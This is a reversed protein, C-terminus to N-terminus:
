PTPKKQSVVEVKKPAPKPAAPQAQVTKKRLLEAEQAKRRAAEQAKRAAEQAKREADIKKRLDLELEKREKARRIKERRAKEIQAKRQREKEKLEKDRIGARMQDDSDRDWYGSDLEIFVSSYPLSTKTKIVLVAFKKSTDQVITGLSRYDLYRMPNGHLAAKMRSRYQDIGPARDNSVFPLERAVNFSPVVTASRDFSTVVHDLVAPIEDDVVVTRVGRRSHSPFSSEAIIIWNGYGLTQLEQNLAAAWLAPPAQPKKKKTQKSSACSAILAIAGV